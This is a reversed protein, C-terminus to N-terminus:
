QAMQESRMQPRPRWPYLHMLQLSSTCLFHWLSTVISHPLGTICTLFVQTCRQPDHQVGVNVQSPNKKEKRKNRPGTLARGGM